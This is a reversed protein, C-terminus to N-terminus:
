NRVGTLPDISNKALIGRLRDVEYALQKATKLVVKLIEDKPNELIETTIKEKLWDDLNKETKMM